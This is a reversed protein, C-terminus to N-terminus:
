KKRRRRIKLEADAFDRGMIDNKCPLTIEDAMGLALLVSAYVGISTGADGREVAYVSARSIGAREAVVAISLRRRLRSIKIQEGLQRLRKQTGPLVLTKKM